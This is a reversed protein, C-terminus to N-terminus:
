RRYWRIQLVKAGDPNPEDPSLVIATIHQRIGAHKGREQVRHTQVVYRRGTQTEVVDGVNLRRRSDVYLKVIAGAPASM